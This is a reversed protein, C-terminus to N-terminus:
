RAVLLGTLNQRERAIFPSLLLFEAGDEGPLRAMMFAPRQRPAPQPTLNSPLQWVDQGAFFTEPRELHYEELIDAQVRFLLTPYRLHERLFPPMDTGDRILGPFIRRYARLI